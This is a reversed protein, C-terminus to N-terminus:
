FLGESSSKFTGDIQCILDEPARQIWIPNAFIIMTESSYHVWKIHENEGIQPLSLLESPLRYKPDATAM